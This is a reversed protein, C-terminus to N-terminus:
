SVEFCTSFVFRQVFRTPGESVIDHMVPSVFSTRLHTAHVNTM